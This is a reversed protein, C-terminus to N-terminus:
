RIIAAVQTMTAAVDRKRQDMHLWRVLMSRAERASRVPTTSGLIDDLSRAAEECERVEGELVNMSDAHVSVKEKSALEAQEKCVLENCVLEKRVLDRYEDDECVLEKHDKCM